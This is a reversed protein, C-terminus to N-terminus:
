EDFVHAALKEFMEPPMVANVADLMMNASMRAPMGIHELVRRRREAADPAGSLGLRYLDAKTVGRRIDNDGRVGDITCGARELAALIVDDSMGEVGLLGERGPERKRREKGHIDPIYAHRVNKPNLSQKIYNRIKFGAADSDTLIVVGTKESITKITRMLNRDSFIQFGGTTLVAGDIFGSLRIKDYVGEVIVAEKIRYM